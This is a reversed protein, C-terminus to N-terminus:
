YNFLHVLLLSHRSSCVTKQRILLNQPVLLHLLFPQSVFSHQILTQSNVKFECVQTQKNWLQENLIKGIKPDAAIKLEVNKLFQIVFYM